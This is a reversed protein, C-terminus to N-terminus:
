HLTPSQAIATKSKDPSGIAWIHQGFKVWLEILCSENRMHPPLSFTATRHEFEMWLESNAAAQWFLKVTSESLVIDWRDHCAYLERFGAPEGGEPRRLIIVAWGRTKIAKLIRTCFEACGIQPRAM